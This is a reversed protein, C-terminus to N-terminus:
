CALRGPGGRCAVSVRWAVSQILMVKVPRSTRNGVIMARNTHGGYQRKCQLEYRRSICLFVDLRTEELTELVNRRLCFDEALGGEGAPERVFPVVFRDAYIDNGDQKREVDKKQKAESNELGRM